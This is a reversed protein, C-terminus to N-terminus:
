WSLIPCCDGVAPEGAASRTDHKQAAETGVHGPGLGREEFVIAPSAAMGKHAEIIESVACRAAVGCRSRDATPRLVRDRDDILQGLIPLDQDARAHASPEHQKRCERTRLPNVRQDADSGCWVEGFM